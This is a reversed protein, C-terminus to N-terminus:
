ARREQEAIIRAYVAELRDVVAEVSFADTLLGESNARYRERRERDTLLAGMADAFAEAEFPVVDAVRGRVLHAMECRDTIVMPTGALCAEVIVFPFTDARCPLVFLDADQLAALARRRLGGEPGAILVASPPETELLKRWATLNVACPYGGAGRMELTPKKTGVRAPPIRRAPEGCLSAADM